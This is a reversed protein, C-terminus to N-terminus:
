DRLTPPTKESYSNCSPNPHVFPTSAFSIASNGSNVAGASLRFGYYSERGAKRSFGYGGVSAVPQDM